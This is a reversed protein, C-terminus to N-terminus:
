FTIGEHALLARKRDTGWSYGFDEDSTRVVRHCPIFVALPNKGCATGAARAATPRGAKQALETYNVTKGSPIEAIARWIARTFETGAVPFTYVATPLATGSTFYNDLAQRILAPVVREKGPRDVFRAATVSNHEIELELWGACDTRYFTKKYQDVM